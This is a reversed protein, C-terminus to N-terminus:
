LQQEEIPHIFNAANFIRVAELHQKCYSVECLYPMENYRPRYFFTNFEHGFTEFNVTRYRGTTITMKEPKPPSPNSNPDHSCM